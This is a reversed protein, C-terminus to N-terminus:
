RVTFLEGIRSDKGLFLKQQVTMKTWATDLRDLNDKSLETWATGAAMANILGQDDMKLLDGFNAESLNGRTLAMLLVWQARARHNVDNLAQMMDSFAKARGPAPMLGYTAMQKQLRQINRVQNDARTYIGWLEKLVIEGRILREQESLATFANVAHHLSDKLPNDEGLTLVDENVLSIALKYGEQTTLQPLWSRAVVFALVATIAMAVNAIAAIWDAASGTRIIDHGLVVLLILLATGSAATAAIFLGECLVALVLRKRTPQDANM